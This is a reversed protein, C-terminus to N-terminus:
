SSTADSADVGIVELPQQGCSPSLRTASCDLHVLTRQADPPAVRVKVEDLLPPRSRLHAPELLEAQEGDLFSELPPQLEAIVVLRHGLQLAQGGNMGSPRPQYALQHHGQVGRTTLGLRV